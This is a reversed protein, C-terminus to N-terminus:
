QVGRYDSGDGDAKMAESHTIGTAANSVASTGAVTVAVAVQSGTDFLGAGECQGSRVFAIGGGVLFLVFTLILAFWVCCGISFRLIVLFILRIVFSLLAVIVFSDISKEFDGMMTGFSEDGIDSFSTGALSQFASSAASGVADQVQGTM